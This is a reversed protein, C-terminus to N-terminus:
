LPCAGCGDAEITDKVSGREYDTSLARRVSSFITYPVFKFMSWILRWTGGEKNLSEADTEEVLGFFDGDKSNFAVTEMEGNGLNVTSAVIYLPQRKDNAQFADLDFPRLGHTEDM